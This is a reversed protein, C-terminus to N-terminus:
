MPLLNRGVRPHNFGVTQAGILRGKGSLADSRVFRGLRDSFIHGQGLPRAHEEAGGVERM